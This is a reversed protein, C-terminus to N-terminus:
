YSQSGVFQQYYTIGGNDCHLFHHFKAKFTFGKLKILLKYNIDM